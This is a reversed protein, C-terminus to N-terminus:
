AVCERYEPLLASVWDVFLSPAGYGRPYCVRVDRTGLDGGVFHGLDIRLGKASQRVRAGILDLRRAQTPTLTHTGLAIGDTILVGLRKSLSHDFHTASNPTATLRM